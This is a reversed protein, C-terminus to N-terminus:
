SQSLSEPELHGWLATLGERLTIRARWGLHTASHSTDAVWTMTDHPATPYPDPTRALRRGTVLEVLAVLDHNGTLVGTGLNFIPTRPSAADVARLCGAVVDDVHIWDHGLNAHTVAIRQDHTAAHLLTPILRAAPERSGYVSFPRVVCVRLRLARAYERWLLTACAKATGHVTTPTLRDSERLPRRRPGYELSSGLVVVATSPPVATALARASTVATDLAEAPRLAAPPGSTKACHFVVDPAVTELGARVGEADRVDVQHRTVATGLHALRWPTTTPRHWCHVDYGARVCHDALHSGIFGAGGTIVVRTTM